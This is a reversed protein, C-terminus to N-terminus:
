VGQTRRKPPPAPQHVVERAAPPPAYFKGDMLSSGWHTKTQPSSAVPSMKSSAPSPPSQPALPPRHQASKVKDEQHADEETLLDELINQRDRELRSVDEALRQCSRELQNNSHRAEDVCREEEEVVQRMFRHLAQFHQAHRGGGTEFSLARREEQLSSLQQQAGAVQQKLQQLLEQMRRLEGRERVVQPAAEKCAEHSARLQGELADAERTVQQLVERDARAMARLQKAVLEFDADLSKLNTKGFRDGFRPSEESAGSSESTAINALDVDLELLSSKRGRSVESFSSRGHPRSFSALGRPRGHPGSLWSSAGSELHGRLPGPEPSSDADSTVSSRSSALSERGLWSM